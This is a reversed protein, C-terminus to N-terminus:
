VHARGIELLRKKEKEPIDLKKIFTHLLHQDIDKGRTLEKLKEYPQKQWYSELFKQPSINGLITHIKNAM